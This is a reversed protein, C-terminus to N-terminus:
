ISIFIFFLNFQAIIKIVKNYKMMWFYTIKDNYDYKLM